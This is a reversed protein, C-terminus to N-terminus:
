GGASTKEKKPKPGIGSRGEGNRPRQVVRGVSLIGPELNRVLWFVPPDDPDFGARVCRRKLLNRFTERMKPNWIYAKLSRRVQPDERGLFDAMFEIDEPLIDM